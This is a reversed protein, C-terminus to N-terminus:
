GHRLVLADAVDLESIVFTGTEGAQRVAGGSALTAKMGPKVLGGCVTVNLEALTEGGWNVLPVVVGKPAVVPRGHVLPASARM